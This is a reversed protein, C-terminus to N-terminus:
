GFRRKGESETFALLCNMDPRRSLEASYHGFGEPLVEADLISNYSGYEDNNYSNIWGQRREQWLEFTPPIEDKMIEVFAAYDGRAIQPVYFTNGFCRGNM